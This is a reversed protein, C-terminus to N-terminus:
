CPQEGGTARGRRTGARGRRTGAGCPFARPPACTRPSHLPPSPAALDRYPRPPGPLVGGRRGQPLATAGGRSSDGGRGPKPRARSDRGARACELWPALPAQVRACHFRLGRPAPLPRGSSPPGPRARPRNCDLASFPTPIRRAGRFGESGTRASWADPLMQVGARGM